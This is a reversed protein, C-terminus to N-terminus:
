GLDSEASHCMKMIVDEVQYSAEWGLIRKAKEPNAASFAIDSPRYLGRDVTLYNLYNLGFYDFSRQVFYELSVSVGTAIVFDEPANKQLMEWMAVVYDPAWGWDREIDIRGLILQESSGSAIRAATKIIKQTVFKEPRFPSEHNFLIGNCAFVDYAERYNSVLNHAAVKAVAYPSRPQFPTEESAAESGIDGFCESSSANYLRTNLGSFRIAELLNLAGIAVTEITEVPQEFSRGVSSQAALNYIETPQYKSLVQLVSRFDTAVMTTTVVKEFINLSKLNKFTSAAADRSSGIVEYGKKLLLEALYAGDQGSVGCILARNTEQM